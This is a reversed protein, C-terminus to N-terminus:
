RAASERDGLTTVFLLGIFVSVAEVETLEGVGTELELLALVGQGTVAEAVIAAALAVHAVRFLGGRVLAATPLGAISKPPTLAALLLAGVPVALFPDLEWMPVGAARDLAAVVGRGTVREGVLVAVLSLV